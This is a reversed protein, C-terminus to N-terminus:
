RHDNIKYWIEWNGTWWMIQAWDWSDCAFAFISDEKTDGKTRM